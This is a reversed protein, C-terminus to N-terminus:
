GVRPAEWLKLLSYLLLLRTYRRQLVSQHPLGAVQATATTTMTAALKITVTDNDGAYVCEYVSM